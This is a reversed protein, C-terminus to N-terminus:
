VLSLPDLEFPLKELKFTVSSHHHTTFQPPLPTFADETLLVSARLPKNFQNMIKQPVQQTKSVDQHYITLRLSESCRFVVSIAIISNNIILIM